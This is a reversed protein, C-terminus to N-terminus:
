LESNSESISTSAKWTVEIGKNVDDMKYKDKNQIIEELRTNIAMIKKSLIRRMPVQTTFTVVYRM